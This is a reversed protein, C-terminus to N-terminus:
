NFSSQEKLESLNRVSQIKKIIVYTIYFPLTMQALVMILTYMIGGNTIDYLIEIPTGPFNNSIFMLNGNFLKNIILAVISMIGIVSAFYKIDNQELEIYQTKNILIGLYIMTGHFLFSHISLFHFAPYMPLSTSPYIIFVIGGIVSGTALCVDGARKLAGKGFSSLLGAYLLISCYYLPMYTNVDRFSNQQLSFSIKVVELICMIITIKKIISHVKEKSKNSTFKLAIIISIITIGILIFHDTTFIGCPEYEGINSFM